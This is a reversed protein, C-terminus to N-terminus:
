GDDGFKDYHYIVYAEYIEKASCKDLIENAKVPDYGALRLSTGWLLEIDKLFDKPVGLRQVTDIKSVYRETDAPKGCFFGL